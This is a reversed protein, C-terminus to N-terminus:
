VDSGSCCIVGTLLSSGRDSVGNGVLRVTLLGVNVNNSNDSTLAGTHKPSSRGVISVSSACVTNGFLITESGVGLSVDYSSGASVEEVNLSQDGNITM